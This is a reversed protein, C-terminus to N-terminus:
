ARIRMRVVRMRRASLASPSAANALILTDEGDKKAGGKAWEM